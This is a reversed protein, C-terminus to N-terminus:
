ISSLERRITSAYGSVPAAGLALARDRFKRCRLPVSRVPYMIQPPHHRTPVAIQVAAPIEDSLDHIAAAMRCRVIAETSRYAAALLDPYSAPTADV